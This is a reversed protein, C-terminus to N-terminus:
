DNEVVVVIEDIGWQPQFLIIITGSNRITLTASEDAEGVYNNTGDSHYNFVTYIIPTECDVLIKYQHFATANFAIILPKQISAEGMAATALTPFLPQALTISPILLVILAIVSFLLKKVNKM